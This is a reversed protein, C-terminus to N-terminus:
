NVASLSRVSNPKTYEVGDRILEAGLEIQHEIFTRGALPDIAEILMIYTTLQALLPLETGKRKLCIVERM